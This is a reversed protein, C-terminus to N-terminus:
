LIVDRLMAIISVLIKGSVFPGCFAWLTSYFGVRLCFAGKGMETADNLIATVIIRIVDFLVSSTMYCSLSAIVLKLRYFM